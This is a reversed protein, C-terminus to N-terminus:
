KLLMMKHSEVFRKGNASSTEGAEIRYFYVGSSVAKGFEDTGDWQVSHLGATQKEADVLTRVRQGIVNYIFLKVNTARPLAYNIQTTPNFPNPYNPLLAFTKPLSEKTAVSTLNPQISLNDIAWGWGNTAPDAFLRFRVIIEDGPAFADLLNIDHTVFMDSTGVSQSNWATLWAANARADYGDALPLWTSGNDKSAEVVVFDYFGQQGFVSNVEGPEVIAIDEYSLTANTATAAVTIPHLLLATLETDDPYNHTSHLATSPFGFIFKKSFGVLNLDAVSGNFDNTYGDLTALLPFVDIEQSRTMFSKGDKFSAVHVSVTKTAPDINFELTTDTNAATAGISFTNVNGVFVATSDYDSLLNLQVQILGAAGGGAKVLEPALTVAPPKYGALQPLEVSWVGLGHTAVVVENNVIVMEYVAVAPLGNDAFAWNAGGDTSEFIGIETGAWLINTDFPMVLLSYVAVDPFGNSSTSNTGFGSIDTWTQGLNDTRLIKPAQAFSFLAFATNLLTPHTELGSIRGLSVDPFVNTSDFSLGGDHSVFLPSSDLMAAGQWVIQPDALSIKIQSSSSTGIFGSPIPILQWSSAFDDSRWVGSSGLAFVLDPNQKSKAIKTFFPASGSGQDSLGNASAVAEWTSGGDTSRFINNFQSSELMKNADGYHWVAEFGDGSPADVWGTTASPNVPSVWSGNDQTGGIYRDAGNMKDVGYFQTTVFGSKIQSFTTGGDDSKSIGGDNANILRFSQTAPDTPVLVINHQDVHVGKTTGGFQGYGDTVNTTFVEKTILQGWKIRLTADPLNNPDFAGGAALVPWIFYLQKFEHGGTQAINPNPNVADYPVAHVFMYERTTETNFPGLEWQGNRTQDRFSFMLQQNHDTDWVEFPVDVYDQYTYQNAPVGTTAGTPVLFRHAKQSKGPGFRIEITAFDASSATGFDIGGGGLAGGFNVLSLFSATNEFDIGTVQFGTTDTGTGLDLRWLNIGGVFVANQDYPHAAITNDYWGQGGLWDQNGSKDDGAVWNAGADESVYLISGADGGQSSLFVKNPNAPSVTIEMRGVIGIGNSSNAWTVGGDTSKVVGMGNVTAYQVSFNGPTAVIHEVSSNGSDFVKTWTAGGDTSRQIGSTSSVRQFGVSTSALVINENAPDVIIRTVNQFDFNATSALQQWTAGRDTTKWIGSGHIQDVNGFGEGTGVYIVNHNSAAMAMTSTALNPLDDTLSTWSLGANTTKWVGGGVSGAYWTNNTADDPDVIIARTRGSVNGPGRSVWNLLAGALRNTGKKALSLERTSKMGRAKLLEDVKYNLKYAPATEGARTRIDRQWQMFLEPSDEKDVDKVNGKKVSMSSSDRDFTCCKGSCAKKSTSIINLATDYPSKLSNHSLVSFFILMLALGLFGKVNANLKM